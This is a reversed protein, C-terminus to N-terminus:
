TGALVPGLRGGRHHDELVAGARALVDRGDEVVQDGLPVHRDGDADENLGADNSPPRALRLKSYSVSDSWYARNRSSSIRGSTSFVTFSRWSAALRAIAPVLLPPM